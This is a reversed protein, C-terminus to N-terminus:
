ENYNEQHTQTIPQKAYLGTYDLSTGWYCNDKSFGLSSDRRNLYTRHPRKGMDKNFNTFTDWNPDCIISGNSKIVKSRMTKWAEFEKKHSVGGKAGDGKLLCGCSKTLQKFAKDFPIKTTGGCKCTAVVYCLPPEVVSDVITLNGYTTGILKEGKGKDKHFWIFNDKSWPEKTKLRGHRHDVTPPLGVEAIFTTLKRWTEPYSYGDRLIRQRAHKAVAYQAQM